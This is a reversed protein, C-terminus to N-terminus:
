MLAEISKPKIFIAIPYLQAQQLRKIANGSVDLICHKGREAVARVSLVSTGYLNENFQGAEIFKNDQIDKEMQERSGVFHYDQGDIENERRPRTTHPVCSGFKHPFESILDDNVRDKMPGLIIVPRTYHIEQRIVPEYSLITDEQGETINDCCFSPAGCLVTIFAPQVLLRPPSQRRPKMPGGTDEVPRQLHLYKSSSSESDSTNSTLCQEPEALEQVINEKSKYFPFKRSLSFSKKRKVKVLRNSEIMGTRAHFKVTKLRAREKKEVRKKSPIVGIQESEGHPTVLRAQWWEDDSANIVHLIDGYSFSLGQSPLCSDRSRDYDFLARPRHRPTTPLYISQAVVTDVLLSQQGTYSKWNGCKRQGKIATYCCPVEQLCCSNSGVDQERIGGKPPM